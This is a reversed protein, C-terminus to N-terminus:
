SWDESENDRSKRLWILGVFIIIVVVPVGYLWQPMPYPPLRPPPMEEAAYEPKPIAVDASVPNTSILYINVM